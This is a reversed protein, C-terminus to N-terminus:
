LFGSMMDRGPDQPHESEHFGITPVSLRPINKATIATCSTGGAIARGDDPSPYPARDQSHETPAGSPGYAM